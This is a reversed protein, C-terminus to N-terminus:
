LATNRCCRIKAGLRYKRCAIESTSANSAVVNGEGVLLLLVLGAGELVRLTGM